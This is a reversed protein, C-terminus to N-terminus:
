DNDVNKIKKILKDWIEELDIERWFPLRDFYRLWWSTLKYEGDVGFLQYMIGIM